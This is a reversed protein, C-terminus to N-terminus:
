PAGEQTTIFDILEALTSEGIGSVRTLDEPIRFAGHETRYAIIDRARKEGIGPLLQLTEADATNINIKEGKEVPSKEEPTPTPLVVPTEQTLTRQTEVWVGEARRNGSLFWGAMFALFVAALLITLLEWRSIKM